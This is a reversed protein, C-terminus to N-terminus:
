LSHSDHAWCGRGFRSRGVVRLCIFGNLLHVLRPEPPVLAPYFTLSVRHGRARDGPRPCDRRHQGCGQLLDGAGAGASRRTKREPFPALSEQESRPQRLCWSSKILKPNENSHSKQLGHAREGVSRSGGEGASDACACVCSQRGRGVVGRSGDGNQLHSISTGRPGHNDRSPLRVDSGSSVTRSVAEAERVGRLVWLLVRCGWM